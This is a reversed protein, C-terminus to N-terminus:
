KRAPRHRSHADSPIRLPPPDKGAVSHARRKNESHKTRPDINGRANVFLGCTKYNQVFFSMDPASIVYPLRESKENEANVPEIRQYPEAIDLVAEAELHAKSRFFVSGCRRSLVRRQPLMNDDCETLFHKGNAARATHPLACVCRNPTTRKARLSPSRMRTSIISARRKM